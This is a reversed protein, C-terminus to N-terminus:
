SSLETYYLPPKWDRLDYIPVSEKMISLITTMSSTSTPVNPYEQKASFLHDFVIEQILDGHQEKLTALIPNVTQLVSNGFLIADEYSAIRGKHIVKNRLEIMKKPLYPAQRGEQLLFIFFYAGLQRESQNSVEKWSESFVKTDIKHKRCMLTIYFEIFRELSSAFSSIAERYYNDFIAHAGIEFLVEFRLQQMVSYSTHSNECDFKLMGSDTPSILSM